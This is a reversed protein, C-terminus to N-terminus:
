RSRWGGAGALAETLQTLRAYLRDLETRQLLAVQRLREIDTETEIRIM